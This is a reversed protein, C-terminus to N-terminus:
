YESFIILIAYFLDTQNIKELFNYLEKSIKGNLVKIESNDLPIIKFLFEVDSVFIDSLPYMNCELIENYNPVVENKFFNFVKEYISSYIEYEM